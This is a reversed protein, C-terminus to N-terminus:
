GQPNQRRNEQGDRDRPELRLDATVLRAAIPFWLKYVVAALAVLATLALWKGLLAIRVM